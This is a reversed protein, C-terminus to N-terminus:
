GCMFRQYVSRTKLDYLQKSADLFPQGQPSLMWCPPAAIIALSM